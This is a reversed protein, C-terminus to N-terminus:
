FRYGVLYELLDAQGLNAKIFMGLMLQNKIQNLTNRKKFPYYVLGLRNTNYAELKQVPNKWSGELKKQQIFFPNYFYIGLQTSLGFNGFVFEHGIFVVGTSSKLNINTKYVEQNVIYDHFSTYYSFVIGADVVHINRFPKSVYFSLHYSPYTPGGVAKTTAGFQHLGLSTRVTYILKNDLKYVPLIKKNKPQYAQLGVNLLFSNMGVNPLSTHGNSCHAFSIDLNILMKKGVRFSKGFAFLTMNCFNYGIYLNRNNTIYNFPKNFFAGGLAMKFYLRKQNRFIMNPLAAITYGFEKSQFTGFAAQIGAQPYNYFQHWNDSGRTQFLLNVGTYNVFNQNPVGPYNQIISGNGTNFEPNFKSKLKELSDNQSFLFRSLLLFFFIIIRKGM